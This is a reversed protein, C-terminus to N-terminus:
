SVLLRRPSVSALTARIRGRHRASKRAERGRAATALDIRSARRLTAGGGRELGWFYTLSLELHKVMRAEASEPNRAAVASLISSHERLSRTWGRGQRLRGRVGAIRELRLTEALAEVILDFFQNKAARVIAAHFATDAAVWALVDNRATKMSTLASRMQALDSRAHREAALAAARPELAFRVELLESIPDESRYGAYELYRGMTKPRWDSVEARKGQSTRVIGHDDLTRLAERIVRVSVKFRAALERESPLLRGAELRATAISRALQGAVGHALRERTVPARSVTRANPKLPAKRHGERAPGPKGGSGVKGAM